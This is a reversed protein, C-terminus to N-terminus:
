RQTSENVLWISSASAEVVKALQQLSQDLIEEVDMSSSIIQSIELLTAYEEKSIDDVVSNAVVRKM